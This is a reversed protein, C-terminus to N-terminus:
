LTHLIRKSDWVEIFGSFDIECMTFFFIIVWVAVKVKRTQLYATRTSECDVSCDAACCSVIVVCSSNVGLLQNCWLAYINRFRGHRLPRLRSSKRPYTPM